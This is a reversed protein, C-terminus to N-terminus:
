YQGSLHFAVDIPTTFTVINHDIKPNLVAVENGSIVGDQDVLITDPAIFSPLRTGQPLMLSVTDVGADLAGIPGTKFGFNMGCDRGAVYNSLTVQIPLNDNIETGGIGEIKSYIYYTGSVASPETATYTYITFPQPSVAVVPNDIDASKLFKISVPANPNIPTPTPIQIMKSGNAYPAVADTITSGLTVPTNNILINGPPIVNTPVPYNADFITKYSPPFVVTIFQGVTMGGSSGTLFNVEYVAGKGNKPVIPQPISYGSSNPDVTIKVAGSVTGITFIESKVPTTEKSTYATVTYSGPEPPNTIGCSSLFTVKVGSKEAITPFTSPLTITIKRGNVQVSSANMEVAALVNLIRVNGANIFTPISTGEPYEITISENAKLGEDVDGLTFTIEQQSVVGAGPDSLTMLLNDSSTYVMFPDSIYPDTDTSVEITLTFFKPTVDITPVKVLAQKAIYVTVNAGREISQPVFLTVQRTVPNVTAPATTSVGNVRINGAPIDVAPLGTGEPFTITITDNNFTYLGNSTGLKFNITWAAEEESKNPDVTVGTTSYGQIRYNQSTVISPEASTSLQLQYIGETEPNKIGADTTFIFCVYEGPDVTEPVVFSVKNGSIQPDFPANRTAGIYPLPPEVAPTPTAIKISFASITAPLQTGTPFTVDVRGSNAILKGQEGVEFACHYEAVAGTKDPQVFVSPVFLSTQLSYPNSELSPEVVTIADSRYISISVTRNQLLGDPNIIGASTEFVITLEPAYASTTNINNPIIVDMECFSGTPNPAPIGETIFSPDVQPHVGNVTVSEKPIPAQIRTAYTPDGGALLNADWQIRIRDGAYLSKTSGSGLKFKITYKAREGARNPEPYVSARTMESVIEFQSSTAFEIQRQNNAATDYTRLQLTYKGPTGPNLIKTNVIEIQQFGPAVDSDGVEFSLKNGNRIVTGPKVIPPVLSAAPQQLTVVFDAADFPAGASRTVLDFATPFDIEIRGGEPIVETNTFKLTHNAPTGATNPSPENVFTTIRSYGVVTSSLVLVFGLLLSVIKKSNM